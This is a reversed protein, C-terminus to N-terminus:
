LWLQLTWNESTLAQAVEIYKSPPELDMLLFWEARKDWTLQIVNPLFPLVITEKYTIYQRFFPIHNSHSLHQSCNSGSQFPIYKRQHLVITCALSVTCILLSIAIFTFNTSVAGSMHYIVDQYFSLVKFGICKGNAITAKKKKKVIIKDQFTFILIQRMKKVSLRALTRLLQPEYSWLCKNEFQKQWNM